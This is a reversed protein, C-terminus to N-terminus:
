IKISAWVALLMAWFLHLMLHRLFFSSFLISLGINGNAAPWHLLCAGTGGESEEEADIAAQLISPAPINHQKSLSEIDTRLSKLDGVRASYILDDITEFSLAPSAAPNTSLSM